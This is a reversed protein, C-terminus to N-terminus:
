QVSATRTAVGAVAKDHPGPLPEVPKLPIEEFTAIQTPSFSALKFYDAYRQVASQLREPQDLMSWEAKLLQIAEKERVIDATLRAVRDAALEAKHKMSYTIAAGVIMVTLLVTNFIRGM